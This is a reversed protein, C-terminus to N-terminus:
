WTDENWVTEFWPKGGVVSFKRLRVPDFNEIGQTDCLTGDVWINSGSDM